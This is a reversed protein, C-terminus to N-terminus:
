EGRYRLAFDVDGLGPPVELPESHAEFYGPATITLRYAGTPLNPIVYAGASDARVSGRRPSDSPAVGAALTDSSGPAPEWSVTAAKGVVPQGPTAVDTIRGEILPYLIADRVNPVGWGYYPDPRAARDATLALADWVAEPSWDPHAGLVLAACGAILPTSFSTGNAVTYRNRTRAKAQWAATGMAVLDPKIRGDWTPGISSFGSLRGNADVSGVALVGPADSPPSLSLARPGYNGTSNVVLLGRELAINAVRSNEATRGDREQPRYWLPYSLSSSFIDAGEAEAWEVAECWHDEEVRLESGIRETKGLLFESEYAPGILSGPAYGALVSLVATGHDAQSILDQAPDYGTDRDDFVFDREDRVVLRDLAEHSREFGSDLVCILVGEGHYGMAHAEPIGLMELQRYSPGYEFADAQQAAGAAATVGATDTAGAAGAQDTARPQDTASEPVNGDLADPPALPAVRDIGSVFPLERIAALAAPDADVSVANLWRSRTRLEAGTAAVARVYASDPERDRDDLLDSPVASEGRARSVRARRALARATLVSADVAGGSPRDRFFIWYATRPAEESADGLAPLSLVGLVLAGLLVVRV